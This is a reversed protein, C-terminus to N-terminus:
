RKAAPEVEIRFQVAADGEGCTGHAPLDRTVFGERVYSVTLQSGSVLCTFSPPSALASGDPLTVAGLQHFATTTDTWAAAIIDAKSAGAAAVPRERAPLPRVVITPPPAADAAGGALLFLVALM